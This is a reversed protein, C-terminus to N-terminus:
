PTAEHTEPDIPAPQVDPQIPADTGTSLLDAAMSELRRMVDRRNKGDREAEICGSLLPPYAELLPRVLDIRTFVSESVGQVLAQALGPVFEALRSADEAHMPRVPEPDQPEAQAGQFFDWALDFVHPAAQQVGNWNGAQVLELLSRAPDEVPPTWEEDARRWVGPRKLFLKALSEPVQQVDGPGRWKTKTGYLTDVKESKNGVYRVAVLPGQPKPAQGVGSLATGFM